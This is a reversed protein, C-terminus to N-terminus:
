ESNVLTANMARAPAASTAPHTALMAIDVLPKPYCGFFLTFAACLGIAGLLPANQTKPLPTASTQLYMKALIRVYYWGGIAANIAGILALWAAWRSGTAIAGTFLLFKGCFGATLPIGILSLLFIGMLMAIVPQSVGLGILDDENEVPREPTNLYALVAFAGITMSGYAVLYFLIAEVGGPVAAGASANPALALYHAMTLGILMYGAHAVSSYALLRKVNTQLLALVNGLTMTIVSLLWFLSPLQDSFDVGAGSRGAFVYGALRVLAVFGAAKPIFAADVGRLDRESVRGAYFHFPVATIKFGLSTVIMVMAMVALAAHFWPRNVQGLADLMTPINTAGSLGYLYSFGFLLFASTFISLLFYKVAAEQSALDHRPLYLLVYTPISILELALFLAVLDNAAATLSLGAVIILLCAYYEAAQRDPVENWSVLVLVVGAVLAIGRILHALGDVYIPAAYVEALRDGVGAPTVAQALGAAALAFLSFGAWVHRNTAFVAGVFLVCAAALLVIEPVVKAFVQNLAQVIELNM